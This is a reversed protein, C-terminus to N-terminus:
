KKVATDIVSVFKSIKNMVELPNMSSNTFEKIRKVEKRIVSIDADSIYSPIREWPFVLIDYIEADEKKGDKRLIRGRRQIYEIPNGSSALIIAREIGPVNIGEDLVKMAVMVKYNGSNFLNIIEERHKLPQQYTVEHAFIKRAHLTRKVREIQKDSCYILTNKMDPLSDLIKEFAAWKSESNKVIKSRKLIMPLAEEIDGNNIAINRGIAKTLNEYEIMEDSMLQVVEAHYKYPVLYEPIAEGIGFEYVIGCFYAHMKATGEDDMYREPTASLGLRYEYSQLLGKQFQPAWAHQVEDCVLLKPGKWDKISDKLKDSCLAHYTCVAVVQKSRGIKCKLMASKLKSEWENSNGMLEIVSDHGADELSEKWQSVLLQTPVAILIFPKDNELLFIEIIKIALPTKGLGTALKVIGRMNNEFWADKADRQYPRLEIKKKPKPKRQRQKSIEILEETAKKSLENFEKETPPAIEILREDIKSSSFIQTRETEGNWFREFRKTHKSIRKKDESNWSVFVEFDEINQTWGMQTENCSGKFTVINGEDDELIGVKQHHMGAYNESVAFKIRLRGTKIMWGLMKMHDLALKELRNVDNLFEEELGKIVSEPNRIVEWDKKSIKPSVILEMRGGNKIFPAIGRAAIALTNSSYFGTLRRYVVSNSLCPIWFGNLIDDEDSNYSISLEGRLDYLSM